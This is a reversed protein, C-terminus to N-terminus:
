AAIRNPHKEWFEASSVVRYGCGLHKALPAVYDKIIQGDETRPFEGVSIELHGEQRLVDCGLNYSLDRLATPHHGLPSLSFANDRKAPVLVNVRDGTLEVFLEKPM